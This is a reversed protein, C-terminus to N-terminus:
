TRKYRKQLFEAQELTLCCFKLERYNKLAYNEILNLSKDADKGFPFYFANEYDRTSEKIVLNEGDDFYECRFEDKWLYKAGVSFDCFSKSNLCFYKNLKNLDQSEKIFNM